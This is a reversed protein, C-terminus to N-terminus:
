LKACATFPQVQHARLTSCTVHNLLPSICTFHLLTYAVRVCVHFSESCFVVIYYLLLIFCFLVFLNNIYFLSFLDCFAM